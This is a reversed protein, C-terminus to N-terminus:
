RRLWRALAVGIGIIVLCMWWKIHGEASDDDDDNDKHEPPEGGAHVAVPRSAVSPHSDFRDISSRSVDTNAPELQL